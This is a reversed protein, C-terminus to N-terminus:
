MYWQKVYMLLSHTYAYNEFSTHSNNCYFLSVLKTNVACMESLAFKVDKCSCTHAYMIISVLYMYWCFIMTNRLVYFIKWGQSMICEHVTTLCLIVVHNSSCLPVILLLDRSVCWLYVRRARSSSRNCCDTRRSCTPTSRACRRWSRRRRSWVAWRKWCRMQTVVAPMRSPTLVTCSVWKEDYCHSLRPMYRTAWAQFCCRNLTQQRHVSGRHMMCINVPRGMLWLNLWFAVVHIM